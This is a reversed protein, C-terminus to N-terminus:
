MPSCVYSCSGGAPTSGLAKAEGQYAPAGEPFVASRFPPGKGHMSASVGPGPSRGRPLQVFPRGPSHEPLRAQGRGQSQNSLPNASIPSRALTMVADMVGDTESLSELEDGFGAINNNLLELTIGHQRLVPVFVRRFWRRQTQDAILDTHRRLVIYLGSAVDGITRADYQDRALRDRYDSLVLQVVDGQLVGEPRVEQQLAQWVMSNAYDITDEEFILADLGRRLTLYEKYEATFLQGVRPLRALLDEDAGDFTARWGEANNRWEILQQLSGGDFVQYCTADRARFSTRTTM